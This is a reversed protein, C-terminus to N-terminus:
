FLHVLDSPFVNSYLPADNRTKGERTGKRTTVLEDGNIVIVRGTEDNMLKEFVDADEIRARHCLYLPATIVGNPGRSSRRRTGLKWGILRTQLSTVESASLVPNEDVLEEQLERSVDLEIMVANGQKAWSLMKKLIAIRLRALNGESTTHLTMRADYGIPPIHEEFRVDGLKQLEKMGCDHIIAGGGIAGFATIGRKQASDNQIALTLNHHGYAFVTVINAVTIRHCIHSPRQNHVSPHPLPLLSPVFTDM